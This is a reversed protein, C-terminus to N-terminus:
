KRGGNQHDLKKEIRELRRLIEDNVPGQSTKRLFVGDLEEVAVPNDGVRVTTDLLHTPGSDDAFLGQHRRSFREFVGREAWEARGETGHLAAVLHHGLVAFAEPRLDPLEGEALRQRDVSNM